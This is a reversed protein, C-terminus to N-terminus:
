KRLQRKKKENKIGGQARTKRYCGCSKTGGCELNKLLYTRQNGCVCKALVIRPIGFQAPFYGLVKLNGYTQKM